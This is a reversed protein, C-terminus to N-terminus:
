IRTKSFTSNQNQIKIVFHWDMIAFKSYYFIRNTRTSKQRDFVQLIVHSDCLLNQYFEPRSCFESIRLVLIGLLWFLCNIIISFRKPRAREGLDFVKHERARRAREGLDISKSRSTKGAEM